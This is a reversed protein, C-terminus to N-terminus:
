ASFESRLDNLEKRIDGHFSKMEKDSKNTLNHLFDVHEWPLFKSVHTILEISFYACKDDSQTQFYLVFAADLLDLASYAEIMREKSKKKNVAYKRMGFYVIMSFLAAIFITIILIKHM